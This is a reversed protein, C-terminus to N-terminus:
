DSCVAVLIPHGLLGNMEKCIITRTARTKLKMPFLKTVDHCSDYRYVSFFVDFDTFKQAAM